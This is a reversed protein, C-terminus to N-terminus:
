TYPAKEQDLITVFIIPVDTIQRLRECVSWGSMAPLMVDLLILDPQQTFAQRLGDEGDTAIFVSYGARELQFRVLEASEIEDDIVLIKAAM